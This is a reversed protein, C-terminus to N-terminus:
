DGSGDSQAATAEVARLIEDLAARDQVQGGIVVADISRTNGIDALPDQTLLLLDAFAGVSVTGVDGTRDLYEAPTSTATKLVDMEGIGAEAFRTLEDHLAFGPFIMTDNSDTGALLRVGAAHADGSLRLGLEYFEGFLGVLESTAQATRDLDREWGARIPALIYKMREDTRYSPDSARFDMERTGHTPVLFTGNAVLTGLVENCRAEDFADLTSRIREEASPGEGGEDVVRAMVSRYPESYAGCAVPLDRAHEITRHGAASAELVSVGLPLHGSVELGLRNAEELLGFYAERPVSNYVKVLDVGRTALWEALLRGDEATGPALFDPVGEPLAERQSVGQVPASSLALARPAAREGRLADDALDRLAGVCVAGEREEGLCDSAMERFGTIGNALLLDLTVASVEENGFLHVHMDILGPILFRGSGHISDPAVFSGRGSSPEIGVIRDGAIAVSHNPLVRESAPDIVTVDDIVLSVSEPPPACAVFLVCLPLLIPKITM